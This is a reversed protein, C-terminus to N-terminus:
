HKSQVVGVNAPYSLQEQQIDHGARKAHQVQFNHPRAPHDREHLGRVAPGPFPQM